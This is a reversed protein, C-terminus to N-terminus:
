KGSFTSWLVVVSAAILIMIAGRTLVWRMRNADLGMEWGRARPFYEEREIQPVRYMLIKQAVLYSGVSVQQTPAGVGCKKYIAEGINLGGTACSL